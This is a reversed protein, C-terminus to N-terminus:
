IKLSSLIVLITTYTNYEKIIILIGLYRYNNIVGLNSSLIDILSFVIHM